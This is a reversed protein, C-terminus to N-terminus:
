WGVNVTFRSGCSADAAPQGEHAQGCNCRMVWEASRHEPLVGNAELTSLVQDRHEDDLTSLGLVVQVPHQDSVRHACRPCPGEVDIYRPWTTKPRLTPTLLRKARVTEQAVIEDSYPVPGDPPYAGGGAGEVGAVGPASTEDHGRSGDKPRTRSRKRVM